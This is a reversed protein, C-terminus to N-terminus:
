LHIEKQKDGQGHQRCRQGENKFASESVPEHILVGDFGGVFHPPQVFLKITIQFGFHLLREKSRMGDWGSRCICLLTSAHNIFSIVFLEATESIQQTFQALLEATLLRIRQHIIRDAKAVLKAAM